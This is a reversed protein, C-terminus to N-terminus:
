DAWSRLGWQIAWVGSSDGVTGFLEQNWRAAVFLQPTLKYKAELYYAFTDADGVRPVEFRTEYFEAWIQWHHWAFAVDQGILLEKYDGEDRGNLCLLWRKRGSTHARREHLRGFTWMQSPRYGVRSSM